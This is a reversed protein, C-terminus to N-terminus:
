SNTMEIRLVAMKYGEIPWAGPAARNLSARGATRTAPLRALGRVRLRREFPHTGSPWAQCLTRCPLGLRRGAAPVRTLRRASIFTMGKRVPVPLKMFAVIM